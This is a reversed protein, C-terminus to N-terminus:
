QESRLTVGDSSLSYFRNWIEPGEMEDVISRWRMVQNTIVVPLFLCFIKINWIKLRLFRWLCRGTINGISAKSANM